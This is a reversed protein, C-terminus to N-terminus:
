TETSGSADQHNEGSDSHGEESNDQEEMSRSYQVSHNVAQEHIPSDIMDDDHIMNINNGLLNEGSLFGTGYNQKNFTEWNLQQNEGIAVTSNRNLTNANIEEFKIFTFPIEHKAPDVPRDFEFQNQTLILNRNSVPADIYDNDIVINTNGIICGDGGSGFGYNQKLQVHWYSSNNFGVFIGSNNNVTNVEIKNLIFSYQDRSM